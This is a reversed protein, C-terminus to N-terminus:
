NIMPLRQRLQNHFKLRTLTITSHTRYNWNSVLIYKKMMETKPHPNLRVTVTHTLQPLLPNIIITMTAFIMMIKM